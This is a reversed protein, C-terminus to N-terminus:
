YKRGTPKGTKPDYEWCTPAICAITGRPCNAACEQASKYWQDNCKCHWTGQCENKLRELEHELYEREIDYAGVESSAMIRARAKESSAFLAPFLVKRTLHDRHYMEHLKIAKVVIDCETSEVKPDVYPEGSGTVGGAKKTVTMGVIAYAQAYMDDTTKPGGDTYTAALVTRFAASLQKVQNLVNEVRKVDKCECPRAPYVATSLGLAALFLVLAVRPTGLGAKEGVGPQVPPYVRTQPTLSPRGGRRLALSRRRHGRDDKKCGRAEGGNRQSEPHSLRPLRSPSM